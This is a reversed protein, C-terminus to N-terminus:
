WRYHAFAKNADAMRHTDDKRKITAGTNNAADLLENTLKEVMSKGSRARAATILWRVALSQRRDGRIEIPVQYTAGGVRRAKVEVVPTANRLAQEFVELPPRRSRQGVEDMAGYVIREAVTKKGRSMVKNIFRQVTVSSYRADPPLLRKEVSGRRPM